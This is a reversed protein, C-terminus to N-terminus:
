KVRAEHGQIGRSGPPGQVGKPSYIILPEDNVDGNQNKMMMVILYPCSTSTIIVSLLYLM